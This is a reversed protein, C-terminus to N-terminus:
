GPEEQKEPSSAEEAGQPPGDSLVQLKRTERLLTIGAEGNEEYFTLTGMAIGMRFAVDSGPKQTDFNELGLAKILKDTHETREDGLTFVVVNASFAVRYEEYSMSLQTEGKAEDIKNQISFAESITNEILTSADMGRGVMDVIPALWKSRVHAFDKKTSNKPTEKKETM